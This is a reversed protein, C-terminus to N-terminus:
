ELTVAFVQSLATYDGMRTKESFPAGLQYSVRILYEGADGGSGEFALACQSHPCDLQEWAITVTEGPLIQTLPADMPIPCYMDLVTEAFRDHLRIAGCNGLRITETESRNRLELTLGSSTWTGGGTAQAAITDEIVSVVLATEVTATSSDTCATSSLGLAAIMLGTHVRVYTM